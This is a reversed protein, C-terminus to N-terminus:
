GRMDRKMEAAARKLSVPEFRLQAGPRMQAFRSIEASLLTAIRPYGGTPQHDRMLVIPTGDGLVQIDGPVVSDSVLSLHQSSAFVGVRDELRVGMRDLRHSVVFSSSLFGQRETADFLDAHLGWVFRFPADLPRAEIETEPLTVDGAIIALEDGPRLSRGELGGLAAVTSTARSGVVLPVDLDGAFRVYGYNGRSGPTIAVRDGPKLTLQAPWRRSKGNVRLDFHGGGFGAKATGDSVAFELGALTFEIGSSGGGAEAWGIADMPGSAAIGYALAGFRGRDQVTTLPAARLIRIRALASM